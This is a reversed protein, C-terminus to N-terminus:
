NGKLANFIPAFSVKERVSSEEIACLKELVRLLHEAHAPGGSCSLLSGLSEALNILVEEDDELLELIYPLLENRTREPGLAISITSLSKVATIRKKQDECKLEDILVAIPYLQPNARALAADAQAGTNPKKDTM